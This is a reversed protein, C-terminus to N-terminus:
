ATAGGTECMAIMMMMMMMLIGKSEAQSYYHGMCCRHEVCKVIVDDTTHQHIVSQSKLLSDNKAKWRDRVLKHWMTMMMIADYRREKAELDTCLNVEAECTLLFLRLILPPAVSLAKKPAPNLKWSRDQMRCRKLICSLMFVKSSTASLVQLCSETEIDSCEQVGFMSAPMSDKGYYM